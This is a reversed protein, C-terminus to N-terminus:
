NATFLSLTFYTFLIFLPCYKIVTTKNCDITNHLPAGCFKTGSQNGNRISNGLGGGCISLNKLSIGMCALLLYLM